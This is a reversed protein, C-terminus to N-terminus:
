GKRDAAVLAEEIERVIREADAPAICGQDFWGEFVRIVQTSSLEGKRVLHRVLSGIQPDYEDPPAGDALLGIPDVRDVAQKVIPHYLARGERRVELWAVLYLAGLGLLVGGCLVGTIPARRIPGTPQIRRLGRIAGVASVTGATLYWFLFARNSKSM